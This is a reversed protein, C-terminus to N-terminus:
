KPSRKMDRDIEDVYRKKPDIDVEEVKVIDRADLTQTGGYKGKRGREPGRANFTLRYRPASPGTFQMRGRHAYTQQGNRTWIIYEHGKIFTCEAWRFFDTAVHVKHCDPCDDPNQGANHESGFEDDIDHYRGTSPHMVLSAERAAQQKGLAEGQLPTYSTLNNLATIDILVDQPVPEPLHTVRLVVRNWGDHFTVLGNLLDIRLMGNMTIISDILEEPM